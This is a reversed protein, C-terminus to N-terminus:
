QATALLCSVISRFKKADKSDVNPSQINQNPIEVKVDTVNGSSLKQMEEITPELTLLYTTFVTLAGGNAFAQTVPKAPIANALKVVEGNDLLFYFYTTEDLAQNFEGLAAISTQIQTKGADQKVTLLWKTSAKFSMMKIKGFNVTGVKTEKKTFKDVEQKVEKCDQAQALNFCGLGLVTIMLKKM